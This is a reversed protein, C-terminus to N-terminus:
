QFRPELTIASRQDAFELSQRRKARIEDRTCRIPKTTIEGCVTGTQGIRLDLLPRGREERVAALQHEAQRLTQSQEEIPIRFLLAYAASEAADMTM